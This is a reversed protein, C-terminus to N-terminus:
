CCFSTPCQRSACFCGIVSKFIPSPTNISMPGSPSKVASSISLAKNFPKAGTVNPLVRRRVSVAPITAAVKSTLIYSFVTYECLHFFTTCSYFICGEIKLTTRQKTHRGYYAQLFQQEPYLSLEDITM